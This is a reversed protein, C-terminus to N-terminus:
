SPNAGHWLCLVLPAVATALRLWDLLERAVSEGLVAAEILALRAYARLRAPVVLRVLCGVGLAVLSPSFGVRITRTVVVAAPVDLIALFAAFRPLAVFLPM